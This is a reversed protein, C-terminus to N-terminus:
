GHFKEMLSQGNIDPCQSLVLSVTLDIYKNFNAVNYLLKDLTIGSIYEAARAIERAAKRTQNEAILLPCYDPEVEFGHKVHEQHLLAYYKTADDDSLMYSDDYDLVAGSYKPDSEREFRDVYELDYPFQQELLVSFRYGEVIPRISSEYAKALLYVKVAERLEETIAPVKVSNKSM